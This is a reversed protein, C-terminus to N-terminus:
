KLTYLINIFNQNKLKYKSSKFYQYNIPDSYGSKSDLIQGSDDQTKLFINMINYTMRRQPTLKLIDQTVKLIRLTFCGQLILEVLGIKLM